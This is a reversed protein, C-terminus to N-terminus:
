TKHFFESSHSYQKRKLLTSPYVHLSLVDPYQVGTLWWLGLWEGPNISYFIGGCLISSQAKLKCSQHEVVSSYLGATWYNSFIINVRIKPSNMRELQGRSQNIGAM